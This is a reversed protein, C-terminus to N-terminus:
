KELIDSNKRGLNGDGLAENEDEDTDSSDLSESKDEKGTLELEELDDVSKIDKSSIGRTARSPQKAPSKAM